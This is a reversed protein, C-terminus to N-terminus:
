TWPMAQGGSEEQGEKAAQFWSLKLQRTVARFPTKSTSFNSIEGQAGTEATAALPARDAM